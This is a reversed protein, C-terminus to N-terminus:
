LAQDEIRRSAKRKEKQNVMKDSYFIFYIAFALSVFGLFYFIFSINQIMFPNDVVSNKLIYSYLLPQYSIFTMTHSVFILFCGWKFFIYYGVQPVLSFSLFTLIIFLIYYKQFAFMGSCNVISSVHFIFLNFIMALVIIFRTYKNVKYSWRRYIQRLRVVMILIIWYAYLNLAPLAEVYIDVFPCFVRLIFFFSRITFIFFAIGFWMNEINNYLSNFYKPFVTLAIFLSIVLLTIHSIVFLVLELFHHELSLSYIM